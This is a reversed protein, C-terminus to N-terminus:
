FNYEIGVFPGSYDRYKFIEWHGDGFRDARCMMVEEFKLFRYGISFRFSHWLEMNLSIDGGFANNLDYNYHDRVSSPDQIYVTQSMEICMAESASARLEVQPLYYGIGLNLNLGKGIERNLKFGLGFVKLEGLEQGGYRILTKEYSAYASLNKHLSYELQYIPRSEINESKPFPWLLSAKVEAHASGSILSIILIAILLLSKM